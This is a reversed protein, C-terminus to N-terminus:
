KPPGAAKASTSPTQLRRPQKSRSRKSGAHVRFRHRKEVQVPGAGTRRRLEGRIIREERKTLKLQGKVMAVIDDGFPIIEAVQADRDWRPHRLRQWWQPLLVVSLGSINRDWLLSRNRIACSFRTTHGEEWYRAKKVAVPRIVGVLYAIVVLVAAVSAPISLILKWDVAGGGSTGEAFGPHLGKL